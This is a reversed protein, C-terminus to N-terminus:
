GAGSGKVTLAVSPVGNGYADEVRITVPTIDGTTTGATVKVVRGNSGTWKGYGTKTLGGGTFTFEYTGAKTTYVEWTAVGTSDTYEVATSGTYLTVGAPVTLTVPVGPM